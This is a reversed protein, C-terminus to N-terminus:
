AWSKSPASTDTANEPPTSLRPGIARGTPPTTTRSPSRTIRMVGGAGTCQSTVALATPRGPGTM